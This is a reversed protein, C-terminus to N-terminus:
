LWRRVRSQYARYAEGFRSLLYREEREIVGRRVVALVAPLLLLPGLTNRLLTIGLYVATMALYIPNRSYRYPGEVVLATSPHRPDPGTGAQVMTRVAWLALGIGGAVLGAGATRRAGGVGGPLLSAPWVRGVLLGLGLGALYILPPPAIVGPIEHAEYDDM